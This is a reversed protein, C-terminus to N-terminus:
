LNSMDTQPTSVKLGGLMNWSILAFPSHLLEM